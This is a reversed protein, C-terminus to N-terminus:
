AALLLDALPEKLLDGLPEVNSMSLAMIFRSQVGIRPPDLNEIFLDLELYEM